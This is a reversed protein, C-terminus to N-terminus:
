LTSRPIRRGTAIVVATGQGCSVTWAYYILFGHVCDVAKKAWCTMTDIKQFRLVRANAPVIDGVKLFIIDGPVLNAAHVDIWRGDRLVKARPAYAKAELPANVYEVVLKATFCATLSTVLLIISAVLMNSRQDASAIALSLATTLVTVWSMSNLIVCVMNKCNPFVHQWGWISFIMMLFEGLM